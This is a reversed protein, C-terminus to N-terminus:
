DEEGDYRHALYWPWLEAMKDELDAVRATLLAVKGDADYMDHELNKVRRDELDPLRRTEIDPLRVTEIHVLRGNHNDLEGRLGTIATIPHSDEADRGLIDGHGPIEQVLFRRGGRLARPGPIVAVTMGERLNRGSSIRDVMEETLMAQGDLISIILPGSGDALPSVVKGLLYCPAGRVDRDEAMVKRPLDNKWSM